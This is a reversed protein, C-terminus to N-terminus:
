GQMFLLASPGDVGGRTIKVNRTDVRIVADPFRDSVNGGADMIGYRMFERGACWVVFDVNPWVVKLYVRVGSWEEATMSKAFQQLTLARSDGARNSAIVCARYGEGEPVGEVIELSHLFVDIVSEGVRVTRMIRVMTHVMLAHAHAHAVAADAM